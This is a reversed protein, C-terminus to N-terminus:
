PEQRQVAVFGDSVLQVEGSWRYAVLSGKPKAVSYDLCAINSTLPAPSGSLWYHGLFLPPQDLSYEVWHNGQLPDAPIHCREPEPGMFAAQYTDASPDWWRVRMRSRRVGEKDQYSRGQPLPLEKGKLLTEIAHYAPTGKVSSDHLLADSLFRGQDPYHAIRQMSEPDWCAHILRLPGLDMWLPLTKLWDITRQLAEPQNQYADLFAQHQRLNRATHPRLFGEDAAPTFYAIANYEHNGMIAQAAGSTVMSRILDIVEIQLPGRDILDGLFLAQRNPHQYIGQHQQYGLRQLLAELTHAYGHIDGIIDYGSFSRNM